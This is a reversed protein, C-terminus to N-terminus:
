HCRCKLLRESKPAQFSRSKRKTEGGEGDPRERPTRCLSPRVFEEWRRDRSQVAQVIERKLNLAGEYNPGTNDKESEAKKKGKKWTTAGVGRGDGESVKPKSGKM